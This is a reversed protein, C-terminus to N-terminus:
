SVRRRDTLSVIGGAAAMLAGLLAFLIFPHHYGRVSWRGPHEKDEDGLVLYLLGLAGDSRLSVESTMQAQVPYWRKEPTMYGGDESFVGTNREYNPGKDPHMALFAVERGGLQVHDGPQMWLIKEQMWLANVTIGIIVVGVGAHALAMGYYSRALHSGRKKWLDFATAFVIWGGAGLGVLALPKKILLPLFILLALGYLMLPLAMKQLNGHRWAVFSAGGLLLAFPPLLPLLTAMYYPAGVSVQGMGLAGLFIPYLTGMLVTMCFTFLIVNNLLLATERSVADFGAGTQVKPARLSYFLFAGGIAVTLLVLIFVGRAPDSAFAHVSSLVGSRVLFTGLLSFSFALISLFVTWNALTGRKELVAVSHFLATGALWPMLSANEVPDWAWFGGWGLEYYAWVGGSVVGATLAVWAALVWPRLLAAWEKDVHGEILAAVAFCFSVSFGVYGTYLLPPHVALGLDQLVPNLDMGEVPSPFVRTFPNSTMLIFLLFGFAIMGAVALVRAQLVKPLKARAVLAGWLSLIWVWLMMSGEHNGWVGSIKYIMPKLTHSNEVVNLVSFDDTAHAYILCAFSFSLLACVVSAAYPAFSRRGMLPLVAQLASFALALALAVEGFTPIM